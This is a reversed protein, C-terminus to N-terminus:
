ATMAAEVTAVIKFVTHLRAIEFVARVRDQMGALVLPVQNKRSIQLAEVLTAVGATSMYTIGALDIILRKPQRAYAEKVFVRLSPAEVSGIEGTASIVVAGDQQATTVKLQSIDAM